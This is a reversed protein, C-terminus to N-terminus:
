KPFGDSTADSSTGPAGDAALTADPDIGPAGGDIFSVLERFYEDPVDFELCHRATAYKTVRGRPWDLQRIFKETRDNDIIREEGALFLHIPVPSADALRGVIRDMRRSALYFGATCQRLTLEDTRFFERWRSVNTFLDPDNLPIDFLKTPEYLMAFGIRAMEPKSVGVLPFMGPTVLTLGAVREPHAVHAAVALKGGWSVGVVHYQEFGSRRRLEDGAMVADQILQEGSEAHGRGKL